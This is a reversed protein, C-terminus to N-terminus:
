PPQPADDLRQRIEAPTLGEALLEAIRRNREAVAHREAASSAARAGLRQRLTQVPERQEAPTPVAPPAFHPPVTTARGNAANSRDDGPRRGTTPVPTPPSPSRSPASAQRNKRRRERDWSVELGLARVLQFSLRRVPGWGAGLWRRRRRDFHRGMGTSALLHARTLTALARKVRSPSLGTREALWPVSLGLWDGGSPVAVTLTAIDTYALLVSLVAVVAERRESRQQRWRALRATLARGASTDPGGVAQIQRELRQQREGQSLEDWRTERPSQYYDRLKAIAKGILAPRAHNADEPLNVRDFRPAGPVHGCRNGSAAALRTPPSPSPPCASVARVPASALPSAPFGPPM